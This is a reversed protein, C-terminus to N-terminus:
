EHNIETVTLPKPNKDIAFNRLENANHRTRFALNIQEEKSLEDLRDYRAIDLMISACFKAVLEPDQKLLYATVRKALDRNTMENEM